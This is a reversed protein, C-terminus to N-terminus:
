MGQRKFAPKGCCKAFQKQSGCPCPAFWNKNDEPSEEDSEVAVDEDMAPDTVWWPMELPSQRLANAFIGLVALAGIAIMFSRFRDIDWLWGVGLSLLWSLAIVITAALLIVAGIGAFAAIIRM